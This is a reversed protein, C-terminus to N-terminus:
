ETAERKLWRLIDNTISKEFEDDNFHEKLCLDYLLKAIEEDTARRFWRDSNKVPKYCGCVDIEKEHGARTCERDGCFRCNIM